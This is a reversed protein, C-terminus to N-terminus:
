RWPTRPGTTWRRSSRRRTSWRGRCSSPPGDGPRPACRAPWTGTSGPPTHGDPRYAAAALGSGRVVTLLDVVGALEAVHGAAEAPTIGAWPALEDCSLRLALVRSPGLEARVAQLVQRLLRRRDTGHADTRTNTLGSLFQRLLAGPGADVEVGDVGATVATGTAAAFGSVLATLEADEMEAPVERVAVDPVRSPAWLAAQSWASSGQAGTHGLGALM